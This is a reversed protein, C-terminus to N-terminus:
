ELNMVEWSFGCSACEFEGPAIEFGYENCRLCRHVYDSMVPDGSYLETLKIDENYLMTAEIDEDTYELIKYISEDISLMLDCKECYVCLDQQEDLYEM